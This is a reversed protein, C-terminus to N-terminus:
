LTGLSTAFTSFCASRSSNSVITTTKTKESKKATVAATSKEAPKTKAAEGTAETAKDKATTDATETKEIKEAKKTVKTKLYLGFAIDYDTTFFEWQLTSGPEEVVFSIQHASRNKVVIREMQEKSSEMVNTLFYKSPVDRGPPIFDSCEPDPEMRNGGYMAPLEDLSIFKQLEEKL